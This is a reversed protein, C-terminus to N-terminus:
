NKKNNISSYYGRYFAERESLKKIEVDRNYKSMKAKCKYKYKACLSFSSVFSAILLLLLILCVFGILCQFILRCYDNPFLGIPQSPQCKKSYLNINQELKKNGSIQQICTDRKIIKITQPNVPSIIKTINIPSQNAQVISETEKTINRDTTNDGNSRNPCFPAPRNEMMSDYSTVCSGLLLFLLLLGTLLFQYRTPGPKKDTKKQTPISNNMSLWIQLGAVFLLLACATFTFFIFM